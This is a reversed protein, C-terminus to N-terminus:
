RRLSASFTSANWGARGEFSGSVKQIPKVSLSAARELRNRNGTFRHAALSAQTELPPQDWRAPAPDSRGFFKQLWHFSFAARTGIALPHALCPSVDRRCLHGPRHTGSRFM